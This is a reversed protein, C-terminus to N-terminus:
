KVQHTDNISLNKTEGNPTILIYEKELKPEMKSKKNITLKLEYMVQITPELIVPNLVFDFEKESIPQYYITNAKTAQNINATKKLNLSTSQYAEYSAYMEVPLTIKYGDSLSKEDNLFTTGLLTEYNKMKEIATLRAKTALEKKINEMVSSYYDVKVLDYIENKALIEIFENLFAPNSFKIHINKKIEFGAPVENYTKKSFIRKEQEYEYTPVFSIMDVYTEVTTTNLKIKDLSQSIRGDILQQAEEQNKGVQTVSFVAVYADAKVNAMGKISINIQNSIPDQIEIFDERLSVRKNYNINGAIQSFGLSYLFIGISLVIKKM